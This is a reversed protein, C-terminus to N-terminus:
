NFWTSKKGIIVKTKKTITVYDNEINKGKRKKKLSKKSSSISEKNGRLINIITRVSMASSINRSFLLHKVALNNQGYRDPEM